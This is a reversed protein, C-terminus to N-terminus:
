RNKNIKDIMELLADNDFIGNTVLNLIRLRIQKMKEDDEILSIPMFISDEDVSSKLMEKLETYAAVGEETQCLKEISSWGSLPTLHKKKPVVYLDEKLHIDKSSSGILIQYTGEPVYWEQYADYYFAFDRKSLTFTIVTEEGAKLFVKRFARLEKEPRKVVDHFAGVYLQVVEAGDREGTNKLKMSLCINEEDQAFTNRELKLDSYAFTTYSVGYGFPFLLKTNRIDYYRYGVFVGERYCVEKKNGPFDFYASTDELRETFSVPLKGSPNVAGYILNALAAGMGQGALFCEFIGAVEEKWPMAVASANNVVVVVNQNVQCIKRLLQEQNRPLDITKRDHGEAEVGEPQGIFYLVKQCSKALSIAEQEMLVDSEGDEIYGQAYSIHSGGYQKLCDLPIDWKTANVNASGVLTFRPQKAYLGIVAIDDETGFPLIQNKNKLLVIGEEAIRTTQLHHEQHLIERTKSGRLKRRELCTEIAHLLHDCCQDVEEISLTGEELARKIKKAGVGNSCPMDLDMGAAVARDPHVIGFWDSVIFGDFGWEDRLIEKLLYVNEAGYAGNIQNLATMVSQPHAEKVAKEFAPLYLERLTREDLRTDIFERETEQNNCAFHKLCAGTGSEQVGNVYAAAIKGTLYPDESFYEFNRGCLPSRVLNMAPALLVDVDAEAAEEGLIKGNLKACEPNWTAALCGGSITATSPISELIGLHDGKGEQKRLGCPGDALFISPVGYEPFDVTEWNNKGSLFKLKEDLTM